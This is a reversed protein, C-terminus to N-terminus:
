GAEGIDRLGPLGGFRLGTPSMILEALSDGVLSSLRVPLGDGESALLLLLPAFLLLLLLM